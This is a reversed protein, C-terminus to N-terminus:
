IKSIDTHDLLELETAHLKYIAGIRNIRQPMRVTGYGDLKKETIRIGYPADSCETILREGATIWDKIIDQRGLTQLEDITRKHKYNLHHEDWWDEISKTYPQAPRNINRGMNVLLNLQDTEKWYLFGQLNPYVKVFYDRFSYVQKVALEPYYDDIFFDCRNAGALVDPGDNLLWYYNDGKKYLLPKEFGTVELEYEASQSLAYCSVWSPSVGYYWGAHTYPAEPDKWIEYDELTIYRIQQPLDHEQLYDFGFMYEEDVHRVDILGRLYMYHMPWATQNVLTHSDIGGSYHFRCHYNTNLYEAKAKILEHNSPLKDPNINLFSNKYDEPVIYEAFLGTRSSERLAAYPQAFTKSGVQYYQKM